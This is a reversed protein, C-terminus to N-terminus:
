LHLAHFCCSHFLNLKLLFFFLLALSLFLSLFLLLLAIAWLATPRHLRQCAIETLNAHRSPAFSAQTLGTCKQDCARSTFGVCLTTFSGCKNYGVMFPLVATSKGEIVTAQAWLLLFHYFNSLKNAESLGFSFPKQYPTLLKYDCEITYDRISLNFTIYGNECPNSILNQM